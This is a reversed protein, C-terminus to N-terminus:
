GTAFIDEVRTAVLSRDAWLDLTTSDACALIHTRAVESVSLGRAHLIRLLLQAKGKEIGKEILEQEYREFEAGAATM